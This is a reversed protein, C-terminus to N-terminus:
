NDKFSHMKKSHKVTNNLILSEVLESVILVIKVEVVKQGWCQM